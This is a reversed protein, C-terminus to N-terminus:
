HYTVTIASAGAGDKDYVIKVPRNKGDFETYIDKYDADNPVTPTSGPAFVANWNKAANNRSAIFDYGLSPPLVGLKKYLAYLYGPRKDYLYREVVRFYNNGPPTGAPPVPGYGFFTRSVINEGNYTLAVNRMSYETDTLWQAYSMSDPLANSRYYFRALVGERFGESLQPDTSTYRKYYVSDRIESIKGNKWIYTYKRIDLAYRYGDSYANKVSDLRYYRSRFLRGNEYFLEENGIFKLQGQEDYRFELPNQIGSSAPSREISAIKGDTDFSLSADKNRNCALLLGAIGLFLYRNKM